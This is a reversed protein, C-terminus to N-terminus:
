ARHKTCIPLSLAHSDRNGQLNCKRGQPNPLLCSSDDGPTRGQQTQMLSSCAPLASLWPIDSTLSPSPTTQLDEWFSRTPLSPMQRNTVSAKPRPLSSVCGSLRCGRAKQLLKYAELEWAMAWFPPRGAALHAVQGVQPCHQSSPGLSLGLGESCSLLCLSPESCSPSSRRSININQGHVCFSLDLNSCDSALSLRSHPGTVGLTQLEPHKEKESHSQRRARKHCFLCCRAAEEPLNSTQTM